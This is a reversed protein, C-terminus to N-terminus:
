VGGGGDGGEGDDGKEVQGAGQILCLELMKYAFFVSVRSLINNRIGICCSQTFSKYKLSQIRSSWNIFSQFTM